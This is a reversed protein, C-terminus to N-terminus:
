ASHFENASLSYPRAHISYESRKKAVSSARKFFLEAKSYKGARYLEIGKNYDRAPDYKPVARIHAMPGSLRGDSSAAPLGICALATLVFIFARVM